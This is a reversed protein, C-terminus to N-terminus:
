PLVTARKMGAPGSTIKMKRTEDGAMEERRKPTGEGFSRNPRIRWGSRSLLAGLDGKKTGEVIWTFKPERRNRKIM